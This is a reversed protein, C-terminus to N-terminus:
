PFGRPTQPGAGGRVKAAAGAGYIEDFQADTGAGSLLGSIDEQSPTTAQQSTQGPYGYAGGVLMQGEPTIIMHPPDQQNLGRKKHADIWAQSGPLIGGEILTRQFDTPKPHQAEYQNQMMFKQWDRASRREYLKDAIDQQQQIMHNTTLGGYSALADGASQLIDLGLGDRSFFGAKPSPLQPRPDTFGGTPALDPANMFPLDPAAPPTALPPANGAERIAAGDYKPRKILAM